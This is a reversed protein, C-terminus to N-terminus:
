EQIIDRKISRHEKVVIVETEVKNPEKQEEEELTVCKLYSSCSFIMIISIICCCNNTLREPSNM